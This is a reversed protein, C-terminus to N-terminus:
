GCSTERLRRRMVIADEGDPYYAPRQGCQEYGSRQYLTRAGLNSARVELFCTTAGMTFAADELAQVLRRGIGKKRAQPVVAVAHIEAEDAAIQGTALGLIGSPDEALWVMGRALQQTLAVMPDPGHDGLTLRHLNALEALDNTTAQRIETV